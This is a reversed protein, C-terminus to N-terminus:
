LHLWLFFAAVGKMWTCKMQFQISAQIRYYELSQIFGWKINLNESSIIQQCEALWILSISPLLHWAMQLFSPLIFFLCTTTFIKLQVQNNGWSCIQNLSSTWGYKLNQDPFTSIIHPWWLQPNWGHNPWRCGSWMTMSAAVHDCPRAPLMTNSSWTSWTTSVIKTM